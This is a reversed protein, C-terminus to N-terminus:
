ATRNVKISHVLVTGAPAAMGYDNYHSANRAFENNIVAAGADSLGALSIVYGGKGRDGPPGIGVTALYRDAGAAVAQYFYYAGPQRLPQVAVYWHRGPAPLPAAITVDLKTDTTTLGNVPSTIKPRAAPRHTVPSAPTAPPSPVGSFAAPGQAILAAAIAAAAGILAVVVPANVWRHRRRAPSAASISSV